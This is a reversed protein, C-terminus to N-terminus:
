KLGFGLWVLWAFQHLVVILWFEFQYSPKISKHRLVRQAVYGGPWGGALECVHLTQESTRWIKQRARTKDDAYLVFTFVSMVPYLLLPWYNGTVWNFHTAGALPLSLLLLLKVLLLALGTKPGPKDGPRPKKLPPESRKKLGRISANVARTKGDSNTTCYYYITDNIRPRRPSDKLESIHLFVEKGGDDPQIFGFGRDDKWIVLKGSYLDANM